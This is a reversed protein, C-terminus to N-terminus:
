KIEEFDSAQWSGDYSAELPGYLRLIAMFGQGPVTAYWNKRQWHPFGTQESQM